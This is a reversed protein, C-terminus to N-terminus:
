YQNEISQCGSRSSYKCELIDRNINTYGLKVAVASVFKCELIDRNIHRDDKM